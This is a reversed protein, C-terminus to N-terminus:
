YALGIIRCLGRVSSCRVGTWERYSNPLEVNYVTPLAAASQFFALLLKLQFLFSACVARSLQPSRIHQQSCIQTASYPVKPVLSMCSAKEYLRRMMLVIGLRFAKARANRKKMYELVFWLAM